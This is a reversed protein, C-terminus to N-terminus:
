QILFFVVNKAQLEYFSFRMDLDIQIYENSEKKRIKENYIIIDHYLSHTPLIICNTHTLLFSSVVQNVVVKTQADRVTKFVVKKDILNYSSYHHKKPFIDWTWIDVRVMLCFVVNKTQLKYFSFRMDLDIQISGNSEKKRVKM